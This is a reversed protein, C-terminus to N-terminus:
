MARLTEVFPDFTVFIIFKIFKIFKESAPPISM